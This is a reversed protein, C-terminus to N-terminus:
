KLTKRVKTFVSVEVKPKNKRVSRAIAEKMTDALRCNQEVLEQNQQALTETQKRSSQLEAIAEQLLVAMDDDVEAMISIALQKQIVARMRM